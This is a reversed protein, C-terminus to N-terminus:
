LEILGVFALHDSGWEDFTIPPQRTWCSCAGEQLIDHDNFIDIEQYSDGVQNCTAIFRPKWHFMRMYLTILNLPKGM